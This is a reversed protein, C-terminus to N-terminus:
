TQTKQGHANYQSLHSNANLSPPMNPTPLLVKRPVSPIARASDPVARASALATYRMAFNYVQKEISKDKAHRLFDDIQKETPRMGAMVICFYLLNTALKGVRTGSEVPKKKQTRGNNM